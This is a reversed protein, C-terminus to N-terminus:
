RMAVPKCRQFVRRAAWWIMAVVLILGLIMGIITSPPTDDIVRLEVENSWFIQGALGPNYGLRFSVKNGLIPHKNKLSVKLEHTLAGGPPIKVCVNGDPEAWPELWFVIPNSSKWLVDWSSDTEVVYQDVATPNEVRLKVMVDSPLPPSMATVGTFPSKFSDPTPDFIFHIDPKSLEIVVKLDLHQSQSYGQNPYGYYTPQPEDAFSVGPFIALGLALCLIVKSKM